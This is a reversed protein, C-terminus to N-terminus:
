RWVFGSFCARHDDRCCLTYGAASKTPREIILTLETSDEPPLWSRQAFRGPICDGREKPDRSERPCLVPKCLEYPETSDVWAVLAVALEDNGEAVPAGDPDLWVNAADVRDLAIDINNLMWSMGFYFGLLLPVLGLLRLLRLPGSANEWVWVGIVILPVLLLPWAALVAVAGGPIHSAVGEMAEVELLLAVTAVLFIGLPAASLAYAVVITAESRLARPMTWAALRAVGYVTIAHQLGVGVLRFIQADLEIAGLAESVLRAFWQTLRGADPSTSSGLFLGFVGAGVVLFTMWHLYHHASILRDDLLRRAARHPAVLQLGWTRAFAAAFRGVRSILLYLSSPEWTGGDPSQPLEPAQPTDRM